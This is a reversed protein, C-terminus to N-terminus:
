PQDILYVETREKQEGDPTPATPAMGLSALANRRAYM